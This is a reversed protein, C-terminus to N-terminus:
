VDGVDGASSVSVSTIGSGSIPGASIGPISPFGTRHLNRGARNQNSDDEYEVSRIYPIIYPNGSEKTQYAAKYRIRVHTQGPRDYQVRYSSRVKQLASPYLHLTHPMGDM